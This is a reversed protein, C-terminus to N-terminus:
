TMIKELLNKLDATSKQPTAKKNANSVTVTGDKNLIKSKAKLILDISAKWFTPNGRFVETFNINGIGKLYAKDAPCRGIINGIEGKLQVDIIVQIPKEYEVAWELEKVCFPRTFYMPSMIVLIIKSNKIGEKMAAEDREEMRVDLWCSKGLDKMSHFTDLAIDKSADQHHSLFYEWEGPENLFATLSAM